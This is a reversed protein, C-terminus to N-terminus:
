HNWEQLKRNLQPQRQLHDRSLISYSLLRTILYQLQNRAKTKICSGYGQFSTFLALVIFVFCFSHISAM